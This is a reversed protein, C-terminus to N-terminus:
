EFFIISSTWDKPYHTLVEVGTETVVVDDEIRVGGFGPLYIGPEITFVLGPKLQDRNEGHVSPYEHIELGLGHGLRHTFYQGYGAESITNRAVADLEAMTLGPKVAEIARQEALLVREYIEKHKAKGEGVMFTRTIDSCYGKYVVGLDLLLYEGEQIISQDPKGHPLASKAGSLVTTGFSMSQAGLRKAAWELENVLDIETMGRTLRSLGEQIVLDVMEAAKRLLQMEQEDKISRLAHIIPALSRFSIGPILERLWESRELSLVDKEVGIISSCKTKLLAQKIAGIPGEHDSYSYVEEVYQEAAEKELAPVVLVSAGDQGMFLGLFREHPDTYLGTFYYVSSPNLVLSAEIGEGAMQRILQERRKAYFDM